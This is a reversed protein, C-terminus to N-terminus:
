PNAVQWRGFSATLDTHLNSGVRLKSGLDLTGRPPPSQPDLYYRVIVELDPNGILANLRAVANRSEASSWFGWRSAYARLGERVATRLKEQRERNTKLGANLTFHAQDADKVAIFARYGDDGLKLKLVDVLLRPDKFYATHQLEESLGFSSSIAVLLDREKQYYDNEFPIGHGACIRQAIAETMGENLVRGLLVSVGTNSIKHLVEHILIQRNVKGKRLHTRGEFEFGEVQTVRRAERFAFSLLDTTTPNFEREVKFHEANFEAEDLVTICGEIMGRTPKVGVLPSERFAAVVSDIVDNLANQDFSSEADRRHSYMELQSRVDKVTEFQDLFVNRTVGDSARPDRGTELINLSKEWSFYVELDEDSLENL